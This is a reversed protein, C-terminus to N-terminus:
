STGASLYLITLLVQGIWVLDAVLLHVLQLWVPALLIVNFVGLGLQLLFLGTLAIIVGRRARAV